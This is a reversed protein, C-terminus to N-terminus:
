YDKAGAAFELKNNRLSYLKLTELFAAFAGEVKGTLGCSNLLLVELNALEMLSAVPLETDDFRNHSLDLEKLSRLYKISEPIAGTLPSGAIEGTFPCANLHLCTFSTWQLFAAPFEKMKSSDSATRQNRSELHSSNSFRSTPLLCPKALNCNLKVAKRYYDLAKLLNIPVGEGTEFVHGANYTATAEGLAAAQQYLEAARVLDKTCGLGSGLLFGLNCIAVKHKQKAAREYYEYAKANDEPVGTGNRYKNGLYYLAWADESNAARTFHQLSIEYSQPVGIGNEHCNGLNRIASVVGAQTGREYNQIGKCLDKPVGEDGEVYLYGLYYCGSLDGLDV